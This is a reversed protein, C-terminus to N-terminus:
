QYPSTDLLSLKTYKISGEAFKEVDKISYAVQTYNGFSFVRLPVM